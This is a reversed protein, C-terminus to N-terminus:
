GCSRCRKQVCPTCVQLLCYVFQRRVYDKNKYFVPCGLLKYACQKIDDESQLYEESLTLM